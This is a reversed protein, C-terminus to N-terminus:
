PTGVQSSPRSCPPTKYHDMDLPFIDLQLTINLFIVCYEQTLRFYELSFTRRIIICNSKLNCIYFHGLNRSVAQNKNISVAPCLVLYVYADLNKNNILYLQTSIFM